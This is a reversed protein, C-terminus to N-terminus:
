ATFNKLATARVTTGGDHTQFFFLHTKGTTLTPATNDPWKVAAPWTIAGSTHTLALLWNVRRSAPVNSITPSWAGNITKTFFDGLSLDMADAAMAVINGVFAGDADIVNSLPDSVNLGIGGTGKAVFAADINTDSGQASLVVGNGTAGGTARLFNVASATHAAEFQVVSANTRLQVADSGKSSIAVGIDSDSGNAALDLVGGTAAGTLLFYNVASATHGIRVQEVNANTRLSIPDSGKSAVALAIDADSGQASIEVTGGAAAGTIQVYDVASATHSIRLQEVTDNTRVSVGSTGKAALGLAINSDSGQASLVPAAGTAGGTARLRNVANATHAVEFQAVNANTRLSWTGSGKLSLTASVSTDSGTALIDPAGATAAGTAQWKNVASATHLIEFQAVSSNTRFSHGGTGKTSHNLGINADAGAASINPAGGTAAGTIEVYDVASATHSVRLQEATAGTRFGISAAGKASLTFGINTDAGSTLFDPTNSAAVTNLVFGNGGSAVITQDDTFTNAGTGVTASSESVPATISVTWAGFTGSGNTIISNVALAGTGPNYSTIDGAMWNGPASTYAIKVSMGVVLSKGTEITLSKPGTGISLSTSSTASTGPAAAASAASAAAAAASNSASTASNGAATAFADADDAYGAAAVASADAATASNSASTASNGATTASGAAAAAQVTATGASAAAATASNSASTASNGAATANNSASTASNSASTASGAAATASAAAAAAEAVIDSILPLFWTRHGDNDLNRTGPSSNDSYVHGQITATTM